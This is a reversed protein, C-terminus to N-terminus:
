RNEREMYKERERELRLKEREVKHLEKELWALEKEKNKETERSKTKKSKSYYTRKTKPSPQSREVKIKPPVKGNFDPSLNKNSGHPECMCNPHKIKEWEQLKKKYEQPLNKQLEEVSHCPKGGKTRYLEEGPPPKGTKLKEWEQLKKTFELSLKKQLEELNRQM